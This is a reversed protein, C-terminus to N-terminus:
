CRCRDRRGGGVPVRPGAGPLDGRPRLRVGAAPALQLTATFDASGATDGTVAVEAGPLRDQLPPVLDTRLTDLGQQAQEGNFDGEMPLDLTATRGDPAVDVTAEAAGTFRGTRDAADALDGLAARVAPEDLPRDDGSWVVVTHAFGTEPFAATMADYTRLEPISRPLSDAGSEGLRMGLAPAALALLAAGAVLMSVMPRALVVRM